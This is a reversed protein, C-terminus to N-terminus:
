MCHLEQVATSQVGHSFTGKIRGDLAKLCGPLWWAVPPLVRSFCLCKPKIIFDHRGLVKKVSVDKEWSVLYMARLWSSSAALNPTFNTAVAVCIYNPFIELIFCKSTRVCYLLLSLSEATTRFFRHASLNFDTTPVYHASLLCYIMVPLCGPMRSGSDWKGSLRFLDGIRCKSWSMWLDM